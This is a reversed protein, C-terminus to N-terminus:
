HCHYTEFIHKNIYDVIIVLNAFKFNFSFDQKHQMNHQYKQVDAYWSLTVRTLDLVISIVLSVRTCTVFNTFWSSNTMSFRKHKVNNETLYLCDEAVTPKIQHLPYYNQM